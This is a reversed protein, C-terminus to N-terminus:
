ADPSLAHSIFLINISSRLRSKLIFKNYQCFHLFPEDNFNWVCIGFRHGHFMVSFIQFVLKITIRCPKRRILLVNLVDLGGVDEDGVRVLQFQAIEPLGADVLRLLLLLPIFFLNTLLLIIKLPRRRMIYSYPLIVTPPFHLSGLM